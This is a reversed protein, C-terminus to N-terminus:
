SLYTGLLIFFSDCAGVFTYVIDEKEDTQSIVTGRLKIQILICKKRGLVCLRVYPRGGYFPGVPVCGNKLLTSSPYFLRCVAHYEASMDRAPSCMAVYIQNDVARRLSFDTVCFNLFITFGPFLFRARQLLEWHLPGTTLNFAGPYIM